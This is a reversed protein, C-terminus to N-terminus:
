YIDGNFSSLSVEDTIITWLSTCFTSRDNADKLTVLTEDLLQMLSFCYNIIDQDTTPTSLVIEFIRERLTEQTEIRQIQTHLKMKLNESQKSPTALYRYNSAM